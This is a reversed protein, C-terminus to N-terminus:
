PRGTSAERAFPRAPFSLDLVLLRFDSRTQLPTLDPDQRLHGADRYGAQVARRLTDMAREALKDRLVREAADLAPRGACILPIALAQDCAANYLQLPDRAALRARELATASAEELRGLDRLAAAKTGHSDCYERRFRAQGKGRDLAICGQQLAREAWALAVEPRRRRREADSLSRCTSALQRHFHPDDPEAEVLATEITRANELWRVAEDPRDLADPLYLSGLNHYSRALSERL